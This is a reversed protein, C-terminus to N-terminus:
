SSPGCLCWAAAPPVLMRKQVSGAGATVVTNGVKNQPIECFLTTRLGWLLERVGKRAGAEQSGLRALYKVHLRKLSTWSKAVRHVTAQWAGRDM